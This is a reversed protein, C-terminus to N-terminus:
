GSHMSVIANLSGLWLALTMAEPKFLAPKIPLNVSNRNCAGAIVLACEFTGFIWHVYRSMDHFVLMHSELSVGYDVAYDFPGV